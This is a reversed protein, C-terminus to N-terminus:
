LSEIKCIRQCWNFLGKTLRQIRNCQLVHTHSFSAVLEKRALFAIENWSALKGGVCQSRCTGRSLLVAKRGGGDSQSATLVPCLQLKRIGRALRTDPVRYNRWLYTHVFLLVWWIRSLNKRSREGLGFFISFCM